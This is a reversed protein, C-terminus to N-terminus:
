RVESMTPGGPDPKVRGTYVCPPPLTIKHVGIYPPHADPCMLIFGLSNDAPNGIAWMGMPGNHRIVTVMVRKPFGFGQLDATHRRARRPSYLHFFASPTNCKALRDSGNLPNAKDLHLACLWGPLHKGGPISIYIIYLTKGAKCVSASM